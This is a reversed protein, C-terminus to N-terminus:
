PWVLIDEDGVRLETKPIGLNKEAEVCLPPFDLHLMRGLVNGVPDASVKSM